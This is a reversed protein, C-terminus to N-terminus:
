PVKSASTDPQWISGYTRWVIGIKLHCFKYGCTQIGKVGVLHLVTVMAQWQIRITQLFFQSRQYQELNYLLANQAECFGTGWDGIGCYKPHHFMLLAFHEKRLLKIQYSLSGLAEINSSRSSTAYGAAHWRLVLSYVRHCPFGTHESM